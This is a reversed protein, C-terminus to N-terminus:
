SVPCTGPPADPEGLDALKQNVETPTGLQRYQQGLVVDVIDDTRRPDFVSTSNNDVMFYARLLQAAGVTKPGYRLEVVGQVIKRPRRPDDAPQGVMVFHRSQLAVYASSALGTTETGNYVHIKIQQPPPVKTVVRVANDPCQTAAVTPVAGSDKSVAYAGAILAVVLLGGVLALARVRALNM